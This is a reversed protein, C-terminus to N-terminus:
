GAKQRVLLFVTVGCYIQKLYRHVNTDPLMKVSVFSNIKTRLEM